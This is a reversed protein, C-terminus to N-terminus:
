TLILYLLTSVHEDEETLGAAVYTRAGDAASKGFLGQFVATVVVFGAYKEAFHRALDTKVVGPCMTNVIVQPRGDPGRARGALEAAAYTVMLKTAAYMRTPGPFNEPRNLHRLVGGEAATAWTAWTGIDPDVHQGSGVIGLHAPAARNAREEKMWPLLLGLLVTSLVNVQLNQEWGEGAATYDVGFTGANLVVYDIGGRGAAVRRVRAALAVVSEYSAMDLAEVRVIGRSRGSTQRELARLADDARAASRSTIIVERAGLEVFHAAAALGLGSTGGTVLVTQGEYAGAPPLPIPNWKLRMQGLLGM